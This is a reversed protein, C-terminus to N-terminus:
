QENPVLRVLPASSQDVLVYIHGSDPHVRVDRIRWSRDELLRHETGVSEGDLEFRALYLRTALGGMLLDGEWGPFAEGTYIALGSPPFAQDDWYHIPNVTDPNDEPLEGIPSGDSYERSHTAIPWGFNGGSELINIEDGAREGHEHSWLRGSEPHRALGQPNRHGYTYLADLADDDDVFPNDEPIGGDAQLRMVKGHHSELDQAADRNRRDGSTYYVYGSEDFAIRSGFHGTNSVFPTAVHLTELDELAEAAEDFIGRGLHTAYHGSADDIGAWTLYVWREGDDFDPHLAVDLLGGQGVAAVEPVGDIETREGSDLDVRSLEGSRETVLATEGDPLFALSWPHYLGDSVTEVEYGHEPLEDGDDTSEAFCAALAFLVSAPVLWPLLRYANSM